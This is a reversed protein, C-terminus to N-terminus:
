RLRLAATRLVLLGLGAGLFTLSLLVLPAPGDPAEPEHGGKVANGAAQTAIDPAGVSPVPTSPVAAVAPEQATLDLAGVTPGPSVVLVGYREHDLGRTGSPGAPAALYTAAGGLPLMPLAALLLGSLGLTVLAAALPRLAPNGQRGFPRLSRRWWGGRALSTARDRTLRFDRTAPRPAPPLSRTAAAIARLDELLTRCEGCSALLMEALELDRGTLDGPAHASVLLRDHADHSGQPRTTM